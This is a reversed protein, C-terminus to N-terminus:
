ELVLHFTLFLTKENDIIEGTITIDQSSHDSFLKNRIIMHNSILVYQLNIREMYM